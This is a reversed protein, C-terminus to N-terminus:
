FVLPNSACNCPPAPRKFSICKLTSDADDNLSGNDGFTFIYEEQKLTFLVKNSEQTKGARRVEVWVDGTDAGRPVITTLETSSAQIITAAIKGGSSDTFYFANDTIIDSFGAGSVVIIDGWQGKDPNIASISLEDVLDIQFQTNLTVEVLDDDFLDEEILHHHLIVSLPSKAKDLYSAPLIAKLPSRPPISGSAILYSEYKPNSDTYNNGANDKFEVSPRYVSNGFISGRIVPRLGNGRLKIERPEGDKLVISPEVSEVTILFIVRYNIQSSTTGFDVALKGLDVATGGISIVTAASSWPTLKLGLKAAM